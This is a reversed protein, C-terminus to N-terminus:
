GCTGCPPLRDIEEDTAERVQRDPIHDIQHCHRDAHIVKSALPQGPREQWYAVYWTTHKLRARASETFPEPEGHEEEYARLKKKWEAARFDYPNLALHDRLSLYEERSMM